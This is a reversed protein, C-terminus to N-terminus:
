PLQRRSRLLAQSRPRRPPANRVPARVLATSGAAHVPPLPHSPRSERHQPWPYFHVGGRQWDSNLRTAGAAKGQLIGAAATDWPVVRRAMATRLGHFGGSVCPLLVRRPKRRDEETRRTSFLVADPGSRMTLTLSGRAHRSRILGLRRRRCPRTKAKTHAPLVAASRIGGATGCKTCPAAPARAGRRRFGGPLRPTGCIFWADFACAPGKETPRPTEYQQVTFTVDVLTM